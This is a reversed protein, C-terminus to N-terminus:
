CAPVNTNSVSCVFVMFLVVTFEYSCIHYKGESAATRRMTRGVPRPAGPGRHGPPRQGQPGTPPKMRRGETSVSRAPRQAAPSTDRGPLSRQKHLDLSASRAAADGFPSQDRHQHGGPPPKATFPKLDRQPWTQGQHHSGAAVPGGLQQQGATEAPDRFAQMMLQMEDEQDKKQRWLESMMHGEKDTDKQQYQTDQNIAAAAEELTMGPPADVPILPGEPVFEPRGGKKRGYSIRGAQTRSFSGGAADEELHEAGLMDGSITGTDLQKGGMDKVKVKPKPLVQPKERPGPAPQPKMVPVQPRQKGTHDELNDEDTNGEYTQATSKLGQPLSAPKVMNPALPDEEETSPFADLSQQLHISGAPREPKPKVKPKKKSRQEEEEPTKESLESPSSSLSIQAEEEQKVQAVLEKRKQRQMQRRQFGSLKESSEQAALVPVAAETEPRDDEMYDFPVEYPTNQPLNGQLRAPKILNAPLKDDGETANGQQGPQHLDVSGPPRRPETRQSLQEAKKKRNEQYWLQAEEEETMPKDENSHEAPSEAGAQEQQQQKKKLQQAKRRRGQQFNESDRGPHPRLLPVSSTDSSEMDPDTITEYSAVGTPHSKPVAAAQILHGLEQEEPFDGIQETREGPQTLHMGVSPRPRTQAAMQELQRQKRQEQWSQAEEDEQTVETVVSTETLTQTVEAGDAKRKEKLVKRRDVQSLKEQTHGPKTHLLPIDGQMPPLDDDINTEYADGPKTSIPVSGPKVLKDSLTWESDDGEAMEAQGPQSLQVSVPTRHPEKDHVSREKQKQRQQQFWQEALEEEQTQHRDETMPEAPSEEHLREKMKQAQRREAKTLRDSTKGPETKLLPAKGMSSSEDEDEMDGHMGYTTKEQPLAHPIGVPRVFDGIPEESLSDDEQAMNPQQLQIHGGLKQPVMHGMQMEKQKRKLQQKYWEDEETIEETVVSQEKIDQEKKKMKKALRRKTANDGGASKLGETNLVTIEDDAYQDLEIDSDSAYPGQVDEIGKPMQALVVLDSPMGEGAEPPYETSEFGPANLQITGAPHPHKRDKKSKKEQELQESTSVDVREPPAMLQSDDEVEDGSATSKLKKAKKQKQRRAARAAAADGAKGPVLAPVGSEQTNIGMDDDLNTDYSAAQNMYGMPLDASKIYGQPMDEHMEHEQYSEQGPQTLQIGMQNKESSPKKEAQVIYVDRQSDETWTQQYPEETLDERSDTKKKQKQKKPKKSRADMSPIHTKLVAIDGPEQEIDEDEDQDYKSLTGLDQDIYGHQVMDDPITDDIDQFPGTVPIDIGIVGAKKTPPGPPSSDPLPPPPGSPTEPTNLLNESSKKRKKKTPTNAIAAAQLEDLEQQDPPPPLDEMSVGHSMEASEGPQGTEADGQQNGKTSSKKKKGRKSGLKLLEGSEDGGQAQGNDNLLDESSGGFDSISASGENGDPKKKKKKKKKETPGAAEEGVEDLAERSGKSKDKKKKRKREGSQSDDKIVVANSTTIEAEGVVTITFGPGPSARPIISPSQGHRRQSGPSHQLKEITPSPEKTTLSSSPKHNKHGSTQIDKTDSVVIPEAESMDKKSRGKKGKKRADAAESIEAVEADEPDFEDMKEHPLDKTQQLHSYMETQRRSGPEDGYEMLQIGDQSLGEVQQAGHVEEKRTTEKVNKAKKKKKKGKDEEGARTHQLGSEEAGKVGKGSMPGTGAYRRSGPEEEFDKLHDSDSTESGDEIMEPTVEMAQPIEEHLVTTTVTEVTEGRENTKQERVSVVKKSAKKRGKKDLPPKNSAVLKDTQQEYQSLDSSATTVIEAINTDTTQTTENYDSPDEVSYGERSQDMDYELSEDEEELIIDDRFEDILDTKPDIKGFSKYPKAYSGIVKTKPTGAGETEAKPSSDADSSKESTTNLPSTSSSSKVKAETLHKRSDSLSSKSGYLDSDSAESSSEIKAPTAKMWATRASAKDKRTYAKPVDGTVKLNLSKGESQVSEPSRSKQQRQAAKVDNLTVPSVNREHPEEQLQATSKKGPECEYEMLQSDDSDSETTSDESETHVIIPPRSTEDHQNGSGTSNLSGQLDIDPTLSYFKEHAGHTYDKGQDWAGHSTDDDEQALQDEEMPSDKQQQQINKAQRPRPQPKPQPKQQKVDEKSPSKQLKVKHDKKVPKGSDSDSDLRKAWALKEQFTRFQPSKDPSQIPSDSSERRPSLTRLSNPRAATQSPEPPQAQPKPRPPKGKDPSKPPPSKYLEEDSDEAMGPSQKPMELKLGSQKSPSRPQRYGRPEHELEQFQDNDSSGLDMDQHIDPAPKRSQDIKVPSGKRQKAAWQRREAQQKETLETVKQQIVRKIIEPQSDISIASQQLSEEDSMHMTGNIQGSIESFSETDLDEDMEEEPQSRHQTTRQKKPTGHPMRKPIAPPQSPLQKRKARQIKQRERYKDQEYIHESKDDEDEVEVTRDYEGQTGDAVYDHINPTDLSIQIPGGSYMVKITGPRGPVSSVQVPRGEENVQVASATATKDPQGTDGGSSLRQGKPPRPPPESILPPLNEYIADKSSTQKPRSDTGPAEIVTDLSIEDSEFSNQPSYPKRSKKSKKSEYEEMQQVGKDATRTRQTQQGTTQTSTLHRRLEDRYSSGQNPRHQAAVLTDDSMTTTSLDDWDDADPLGSVSTFTATVTSEMRGGKGQKSNDKKGKKDVKTYVAIENETNKAEGNEETSIPKAQSQLTDQRSPIRDRSKQGKSAKHAQIDDVFVSSMSSMSRFSMNSRGHELANDRSQTGGSSSSKGMLQLPNQSTDMSSNLPPRPQLMARKLIQKTVPDSDPVVDIPKLGDENELFPNAGVELLLEVIRQFHNMAAFHLATDGFINKENITVRYKILVRATETFYEKDRMRHPDYPHLVTCHLPTNGDSDKLNVEADFQDLLALVTEVHGNEAALHVPAKERKDAFCPIKININGVDRSCFLQILHIHGEKAAIHPPIANSQGKQYVDADYKLLTRVLELHGYLTAIHLAANGRRDPIAAEAGRSLLLRTMVRDAKKVSIHLPTEQNHDYINADANANLLAEVTDFFGLDVSIHLATVIERRKSSFITHHVFNPDTGKDLMYKIIKPDEQRAALIVPCAFKKSPKHKIDTVCLRAIKADSRLHRELIMKLKQLDNERIADLIDTGYDRIVTTLGMTGRRRSSPAPNGFFPSRFILSFLLILLALLHKFIWKLMGAAPYFWLNPVYVM